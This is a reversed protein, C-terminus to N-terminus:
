ISGFNKVYISGVMAPHLSCQYRYTGSVDGPIKWYLTGSTKGQANSATSVNGNSTVHVLGTDYNTGMADQILFPHAGIGDIDFAITTGSLAYISPNNASGYQDFRYSTAGNNVVVLQTIAPLYVKDITTNATTVDSLGSFNSAGTSSSSITITDNNADTSLTIGSGAAFTLTDSSSDALISDAGSISITTFANGGSSVSTFTFGGAGNTTLVQGNTGDTIGLDTLASPITPTGSLDGYAGSTAVTAYTPTNSINAYDGTYAVPALEGSTVFSTLDPPTYRFVGTTNDYEIGGDGAAARENGVSLNALTLTSPTNTLNNYNLYYPGPQGNLFQADLGAGGETADTAPAWKAGDWKLVQGAEPATTSTDVDTLYNIGFPTLNITLQGSGTVVETDINTGGVVTMTGGSITFQGDDSVVTIDGGGGGAVTKFTFVGNGNTTLVQNNSGDSIGLNLISTPISPLNTLSNYDGDFLTPLNELENYDLVGGGTGPNSVTIPRGMNLHKQCWYYLTTPTSSTVHISVSRQTAIEFGNFYDAQTVELGDLRYTVGDLYSTGDELEGNLQDASFNLPHQNNTTGNPNPYYVNTPNDQIFTYTYGVVFTLEPWYENNLVYKNGEGNNVIVVTYKVNAVNESELDRILNSKTVIPFGGKVISDYLRLTNTDQDYFIEGRSGVKRDLFSGERPIIRLNTLTQPLAM